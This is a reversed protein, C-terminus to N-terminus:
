IQDFDRQLGEFDVAEGIAATLSEVLELWEARTYRCGSEDGTVHRYIDPWTDALYEGAYDVLFRRKVFAQIGTELRGLWAEHGKLAVLQYAGTLVAPSFSRYFREALTPDRRLLARDLLMEAGIHGAFSNRRLSIGADAMGQRVLAELRVFTEANHWHADIAYHREIGAELSQQLNTLRVGGAVGPRLRFGKGRLRSLDPLAGGVSFAADGRHEDLWFHSLYNM